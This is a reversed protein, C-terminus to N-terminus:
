GRNRREEPVQCLNGNAVMLQQQPNSTLTIIGSSTSTQGNIQALPERYDCKKCKRSNLWFFNQFGNQEWEHQCNKQKELYSLYDIKPESKAMLVEAELQLIKAEQIALKEKQYKIVEELAELHSM